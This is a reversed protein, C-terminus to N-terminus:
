SKKEAIIDLSEIFERYIERAHHPEKIFVWRKEMPIDGNEHLELRVEGKKIKSM